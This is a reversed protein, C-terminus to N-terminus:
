LNNRMRDILALWRDRVGDSLPPPPNDFLRDKPVLYREPTAEGAEYAETLEREYAQMRTNWMLADAPAACRVRENPGLRHRLGGVPGTTSFRVDEGPRLKDRETVEEFTVSAPDGPMVYRVMEGVMLDRARVPYSDPETVDGYDKLRITVPEFTM